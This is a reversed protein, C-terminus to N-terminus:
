HAGSSCAIPFGKLIPLSRPVPQPLAPCRRSFPMPTVRSKVPYSLLTAGRLGFRYDLGVLRVYIRRSHFNDLGGHSRLGVFLLLAVIINLGSPIAFARLLEYEQYWWAILMPLLLFFSIILLFVGLVRLVVPIRMEEEQCVTPRAQKVHEKRTILVINDGGLLM